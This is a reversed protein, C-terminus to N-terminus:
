DGGARGPKPPEEMLRKFLVYQYSDEYKYESDFKGGIFIYDSKICERLRNVVDPQKWKIYEGFKIIGVVTQRQEAAKIM